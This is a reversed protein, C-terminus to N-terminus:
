SFKTAFYWGPETFTLGHATCADVIIERWTDEDGALDSLKILVADSNKDGSHHSERVFLMYNSVISYSDLSTIELPGNANEFHEVLEWVMPDDELPMGYFLVADFDVGM